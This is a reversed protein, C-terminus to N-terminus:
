SASLDSRRWLLGPPLSNGCLFLQYVITESASRTLAIADIKKSAFFGFFFVRKRQEIATIVWVAVEQKRLRETRGIGNGSAAVFGVPKRMIKSFALLAMNARRGRISADSIAKRLAGSHVSGNTMGAGEVWSCILRPDHALTALRM